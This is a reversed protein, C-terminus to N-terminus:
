WRTRQCFPRTHGEGLPYRAVFHPIWVVRGEPSIMPDLSRLLMDNTTVGQSSTTGLPVPSPMNSELQAMRVFRIVHEAITYALTSRAIHVASAQNFSWRPSTVTIEVSYRMYGPWHIEVVINSGIEPYSAALPRGAADEMRDYFREQFFDPILFGRSPPAPETDARNSFFIRSLNPAPAYNPTGIDLYQMM